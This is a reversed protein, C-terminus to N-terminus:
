QVPEAAAAQERLAAIAADVDELYLGKPNSGGLNMDRSRNIAGNTAARLVPILRAKEVAHGKSGLYQVIEEGSARAPDRQAAYAAAVIAERTHIVVEPVGATQQRQEIALDQEHLQPLHGARENSRERATERTLRDFRALVPMREAGIVFVKGADGDSAPTAQQFLDPRVGQLRLAKPLAEADETSMAMYMKIHVQSAVTASGMLDSVRRQNALIGRTRVKRGFLIVHEVLARLRPVAAVLSYEDIALTIGPGDVNTDWERDGLRATRDKLVDVVWTLLKEAALYDPGIVHKHMNDAFVRLDPGGSLDLGVVIEDRSATCADLLNLLAGSKGSGTAGILLIHNGALSLGLRGGDFRTALEVPQRLTLSAPPRVPATASERLLDELVIRMTHVRSAQNEPTMILGGVPANIYRELGALKDETLKDMIAVVVTWGWGSPARRVDRVQARLKQDAFAEKLGEKVGKDSASLDLGAPMEVQEAEAKDEESEPRGAIALLPVIVAAAAPYSWWPTVALLDDGWIAAAGYTMGSAGFLVAVARARDRRLEKRALRAAAPDLAKMGKILEPMEPQWVIRFVGRAAVGMGKITWLTRVGVWGGAARNRHKRVERREARRAVEVANVQGDVVLPARRKPMPFRRPARVLASGPHPMNMDPRDLREADYHVYGPHQQPVQQYQAAPPTQQWYQAATHPVPAPQPQQVYQVPQGILGPQANAYEPATAGDNYPQGHGRHARAAEFNVVNDEMPNEKRRTPNP